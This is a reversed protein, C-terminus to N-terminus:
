KKRRNRNSPRQRSDRRDRDGGRNDRDRGDRGGDRDRGDRDRQQYQQQKRRRAASLNDFSADDTLVLEHKSLTGLEHKITDDSVYHEKNWTKYALKMYSGIVEVFGDRKTGQPMAIAKQILKQVNHGYHRFQAEFFPYGIPEPKKVADEPRPRVGSPPMAVLECNAIRYIHKWLKERYDEVSRSQPYIQMMLDIVREIFIGQKEPDEISKAFSILKQVHRGYEPIILDERSSNYELQMVKDEM